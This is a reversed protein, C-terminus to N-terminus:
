RRDSAIISYLRDLKASDSEQAEKISLLIQSIEIRPVFDKSLAQFEMHSSLTSKHYSIDSSTQMNARILENLDVQKAYRSDAAALILPIFITPIAWGWTALFSKVKVSVEM